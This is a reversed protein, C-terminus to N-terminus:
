INPGCFVVVSVGAYFVSVCQYYYYCNIRASFRNLCKRSVDWFLLFLVDSENNVQFM